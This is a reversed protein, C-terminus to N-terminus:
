HRFGTVALDAPESTEAPRTLDAGAAALARRFFRARGAGRVVSGAIRELERESSDHIQPHRM